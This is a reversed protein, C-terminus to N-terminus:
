LLILTYAFVYKRFKAEITLKTKSRHILSPTAQEDQRKCLRAATVWGATGWELRLAMLADSSLWSQRRM